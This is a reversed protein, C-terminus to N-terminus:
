AIARAAGAVNPKTFAGLDGTSYSYRWDLMLGVDVAEGGSFRSDPRLWAEFEALLQERAAHYEGDDGSAPDFRMKVPAIRARGERPGSGGGVPLRDGPEAPSM